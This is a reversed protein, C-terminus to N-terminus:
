IIFMQRGVTLVSLCRIADKDNGTNPYEQWQVIESFRMVCVIHFQTCLTFHTPISVLFILFKYGFDDQTLHNFSFESGFIKLEWLPTLPSQIRNPYTM